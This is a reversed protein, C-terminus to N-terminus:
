TPPRIAAAARGSPSRWGARARLVPVLCGTLDRGSGARRRRTGPRARTRRQVCRGPPEPSRPRLGRPRVSSPLCAHDPAAVFRGGPLRALRQLMREFAELDVGGFGDNDAAWPIGAAATAAASSHHRPTLLRGHCPHAWALMTPHASTTLLIVTVEGGVPRRTAMVREYGARKARWRGDVDESTGEALGLEALRALGEAAVVAAAIAGAPVTARVSLWAGADVLAELQRWQLPTVGVAAAAARRPGRPTFHTRTM